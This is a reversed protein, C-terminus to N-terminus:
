RQFQRLEDHLRVIVSDWDGFTPQRLLKATPYWPTDERDRMWRFDAAHPLLIVVPKGLAGALHAVATDVSIVVDLLSIIAATDTFDGIDDGLHVLKPLDRLVDRDASRLESQLSVCQVPPNEFLAALRALPISRNGDNKHTSSGSWVFGARPLAQPLRGRWYDLRVAPAALYPVAAPVTEVRTKFALPLSLLPCHLDFAPLPEGSAIVRVGDLQALLPQLEAQVECIVNAGQSVLLPAYRIFQISDGFGQEAHLLITRGSVPENGLWLPARFSRCRRAFAGTKWRWEYAKWGADFDGFTLHTMGAEFHAEAFEPAAALAAKFEELAEVPRDLRRLTHGRNTLIQPHGPMVALAADYSALAKIPENLALLANGRNVLAGVHDPKSALAADYSSEAEAFRRLELCANGLNYLIEPHDPVLQLASRYSSIAEAYHGATHLALGLNSLADSSDPNAKLAAALFRLAEVMRRRQFNLMGLLHLADFDEPRYELIGTCLREAKDLDGQQYSGYAQRQM